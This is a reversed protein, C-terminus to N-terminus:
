VVSKRDSVEQQVFQKLVKFSRKNLNCYFVQDLLGYPEHFSVLINKMEQGVKTQLEPSLTAFFKNTLELLKSNSVRIKNNNVSDAENIRLIVRDMESTSFVVKTDQPILSYLNFVRDYEADLIGRYFFLSLLLFVSIVVVILTNIVKNKSTM